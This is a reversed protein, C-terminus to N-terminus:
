WVGVADRAQVVRPLRRVCRGAVCISLLHSMSSCARLRLGVALVATSCWVAVVVGSRRVRWSTSDFNFNPDRLWNGGNALCADKDLTADLDCWQNKGKFMSVGLISFILWFICMLLFVSWIGPIAKVLASVVVQIPCLCLCPCLCPSLTFPHIPCEACTLGAARSTTSASQSCRCMCWSYSWVQMRKSRVLLRLPRLARFSRLVSVNPLVIGIISAIVVFADLRNWSDRLYSSGTLTPSFAPFPPPVVGNPVFWM